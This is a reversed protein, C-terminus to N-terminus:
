HAASGDPLRAWVKKKTYYLLGGFIILFLMVQLGMRKRAELHPEAAWVLFAAVDKAYQDVTEPVPPKGDPGKPYEVQGDSLPKPMSILHGPMYTNYYQGPLLTVGQPPPDQYGTLLAHLYDPGQEQYQTFIDFIFTPFGREYTRAKAIVSLDVPYAGGNAARAAQENPFPAPFADAPRGPRQFMEGQENPGDTVQYTAALATVQGPTFEPGGPQSLNRIRLLSMAHCNACVEKAVKFGRQLQARDFKGIPGSFSWSMGPPIVREGAAFAPLSVAALALAAALGTRVPRFSLITM